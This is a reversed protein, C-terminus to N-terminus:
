DLDEDAAMLWLFHLAEFDKNNGETDMGPPLSGWFTFTHGGALFLLIHPVSQNM